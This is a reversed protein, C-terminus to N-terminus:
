DAEDAGPRFTVPSPILLSQSSLSLIYHSSIGDLNKKLGLNDIIKELNTFIAKNLPNYIFYMLSHACSDLTNNFNKNGKERM